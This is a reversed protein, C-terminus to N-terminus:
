EEIKCVLKVIGKKQWKGKRAIPISRINGMLNASESFNRNKWIEKEIHGDEYHFYRFAIGNEIFKNKFEIVDDPVLEIPLKPAITYNEDKSKIIFNSQKIENIKSLKVSLNDLVYEIINENYDSSLSEKLLEKLLEVGNKSTLNTLLKKAIDIDLVQELKEECFEQLKIESFSEKSILKIFYAGNENDKDFNSEFVKIPNEKNNPEDYYLEINDGIYIGYNLRMLRMYSKLQEVSKINSKANPRKLEVVFVIEDEKKITLDPKVNNTAGVRISKGEIIENKFRSWGIKEFINIIEPQYNGELSNKKKHINILYCIENWKEMNNKINKLIIKTKLLEKKSLKKGKESIITFIKHTKKNM